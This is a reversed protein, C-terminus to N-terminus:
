KFMHKFTRSYSQGPHLLHTQTLGPQKAAAAWRKVVTKEDQVLHNQRCVENCSSLLCPQGCSSRQRSEVGDTPGPTHTPAPRSSSPVDSPRQTACLYTLAPSLIWTSAPFLGQGVGGGWWKEPGLGSGPVLQGPWPQGARSLTCM